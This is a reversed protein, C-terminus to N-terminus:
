PQAQTASPATLETRLRAIGAATEDDAVSQTCGDVVALAEARKGHRSLALAIAYAITPQRGFLRAGERLEAFETTNPTLECRAWAEALLAVVEPLAPAQTLARRLPEIVPALETFSFLKAETTDRRLDAYRLRALELYARPRIVGALTAPELYQRAGAPNGGDIECLGMTALLRPDRDGADFARRLTRRAQALYPERAEPLRRQVHGIALREWEGRVRAIQNPTAREAEIRPRPPLKGPPIWVTEEVAKPLYDSLRDRLESFGFGFHAEFLAETVPEEAARASFKWFAERTAGGSLIGWRAFLEQTSARSERRRPHRNETSRASEGAFLESPPLVARPRLPDSALAASESLDHWVLPGVTVPDHMFDARRYTREVGEVLWAPLEPVRARLLYLVHGPSVSLGAGEFMAEDIYAISAHMDRDALRMSHAIDVRPAGPGRNDRAAGAELERQIEASVTQELNQAYLVFVSPVDMQALFEEPILARVMQLKDLWAEALRETTSASCRSLFETGGANVYLWPVSSTSQEVLMPPLEVKATANAAPTQARSATALPLALALALAQTLSRIAPTRTM